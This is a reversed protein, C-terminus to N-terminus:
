RDIRLLKSYKTLSGDLNIVVVTVVYIGPALLPNFIRLNISGTGFQRSYLVRGPIDRIETTANQVDVGVTFIQFYGTNNTPNPALTISVTSDPPNSNAAFTVNTTLIIAVLFLLACLKKM